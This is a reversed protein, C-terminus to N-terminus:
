PETQSLRGTDCDCPGEATCEIRTLRPSCATGSDPELAEDARIPAVRIVSHIREPESELLHVGALSLFNSPPLHTAAQREARLPRLSRRVWALLRDTWSPTRMAQARHLFGADANWEHMLYWALEADRAPEGFRPMPRTTPLM